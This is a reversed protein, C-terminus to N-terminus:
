TFAATNGNFIFTIVLYFSISYEIQSSGATDVWFSLWLDNGNRSAQMLIASLFIVVTIFWGSFAAYNRCLSM